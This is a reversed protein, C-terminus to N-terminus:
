TKPPCLKDDFPFFTCWWIWIMNKDGITKSEYFGSVFMRLLGCTERNEQPVYFGRKGKIQTPSNKLNITLFISLSPKVQSRHRNKRAGKYTNAASGKERSANGM